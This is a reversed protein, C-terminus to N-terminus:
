QKDVGVSMALLYSVKEIQLEVRKSFKACPFVGQISGVAEVAVYVAPIRVGACQHKVPVCEAM